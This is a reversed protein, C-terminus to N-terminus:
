TDDEPATRLNDRLLKDLPMTLYHSFKEIGFTCKGTGVALKSKYDLKNINEEDDVGTLMCTYSTTTGPKFFLVHQNHLTTRHVPPLSEINSPRSYGKPHETEFSVGRCSKRNRKPYQASFFTHCSIIPGM